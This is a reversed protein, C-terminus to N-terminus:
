RMLHAMWPLTLLSLLTTLFTCRSATQRDSDYREAFAAVITAGPLAQLIVLIRELEPSVRLLRCLGLTILPAALLRVACLLYDWAGGLMGKLEMDGLLAGIILVSLPSTMGGVLSLATTAPLPLRVSGLFCVLGVLTSLIVPNRALAGLELARRWPHPEGPEAQGPLFYIIGLTFMFLAGIVNYVAGYFVGHTPFLQGLLPIGLFGSNSFLTIFRYSPRRLAPARRFVVWAVPVLALHVLFTCGLLRGASALMTPDFPRLFAGVILAPMCVNVLLGSLGRTLERSFGGMRRAAFGVGMLLFLTIVQNVLLQNL